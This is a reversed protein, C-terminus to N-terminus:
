GERIQAILRHREELLVERQAETAAEMREDLEAVRILLHRDAPISRRPFLAYVIVGVIGVAPIILLLWNRSPAPRPMPLAGTGDDALMSTASMSPIGVQIVHDLTAADAPRFPPGIYLEGDYRAAVFYVGTTDATAPAILDFGGDPGSIAEAVTAGGGGDVRHLVVRQDPVGTNDPGIVRGRVPLDQAHVADAGLLCGAVVILIAPVLRQVSHTM